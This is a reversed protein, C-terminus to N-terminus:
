AEGGKQQARAEHRVHLLQRYARKYATYAPRHRERPKGQTRAKVYADYGARQQQMEAELARAQQARRGRLRVDGARLHTRKTSKSMPNRRTRPPTGASILLFRGSNALQVDDESIFVQM